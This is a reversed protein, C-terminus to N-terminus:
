KRAVAACCNVREDLGPGLPDIDPRLWCPPEIPRWRHPAGIGPEVLELGSFFRGIEKRTRAQFPVGGDRFVEVVRHVTDPDFDVTLHSIVLYSGPALADLLTSVAKYPDRDDPLFHLVAILSLAVPQDLDLTERLQPATLISEPDAADAHVYATRGQPTGRLLAQAFAMVLPDNDVYVVRADPAIQQAVQHLNPETPIGAGIDLFQRIGVQSALYWTARHMFARNIRAAVGVSPFVRQIQTAYERDVQYNDKGGLFYDYMRASHPRQQQLDGSRDRGNGVSM